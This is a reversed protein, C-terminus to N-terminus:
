GAEQAELQCKNFVPPGCIYIANLRKSQPCNAMLDKDHNLVRGRCITWLWENVSHLLNERTLM